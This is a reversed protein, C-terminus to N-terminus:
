GVGLRDEFVTQPVICTQSFSFGNLHSEVVLLVEDVDQLALRAFSDTCNLSVHFYVEGRRQIVLVLDWLVLPLSTYLCHFLLVRPSSSINFFHYLERSLSYPHIALGDRLYLLDLRLFSQLLLDVVGPFVPDGM